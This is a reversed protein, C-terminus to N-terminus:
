NNKKIGGVLARGMEKWWCDVLTFGSQKLWLLKEEVSAPFPYLSNQQWTASSWSQVGTPDNNNKGMVWNTNLWQTAPDNGNVLDVDLFAGVPKILSYVEQYIERVRRPKGLNHLGMSSIAADVLGINESWNEKLLDTKIFEIRNSYISLLNKAQELMPTSFDQLILKANPYKELFVKALPGYGAGIDLITIKAQFNFPLLNSMLDFHSARNADEKSRDSIWFDVYKESHWDHTM